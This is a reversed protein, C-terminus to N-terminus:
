RLMEVSIGNEAIMIPTLIRPIADAIGSVSAGGDCNSSRARFHALGLAAYTARRVRDHEGSKNELSSLVKIILLRVPIRWRGEM